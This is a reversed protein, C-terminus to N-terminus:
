EITPQKVPKAQTPLDTITKPLLTARTTILKLAGPVKTFTTPTKAIVQGAILIPLPEHATIRIQKGHFQSTLQQPKEKGAGFLSFTKRWGASGEKAHVTMVLDHTIHIYDAEMEAKMTQDVDLVLKTRRPPAIEAETLMYHKPAIHVMDVLDLHRQKITEIAARIDNNAVGILQPIIRGADIPVVGIAIRERSENLVISSVMTVLEEGGVAVITTYGKDVGMYTLEESSRAPSAISIEGSLGLPTILEQLRQVIKPTQAHNPPDVVYYYM